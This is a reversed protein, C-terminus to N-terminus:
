RARTLLVNVSAPDFACVSSTHISSVSSCAAVEDNRLTEVGQARLLPVILATGQVHPTKIPGCVAALPVHEDLVQRLVTATEEVLEASQKRARDDPELDVGEPRELRLHPPIFAAIDASAELPREVPGDKVM